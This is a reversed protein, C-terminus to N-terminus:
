GPCTLPLLHACPICQGRRFDSSIEEHQPWHGIALVCRPGVASDPMRIEVLFRARRTAPCTPNHASTRPRPGVTSFKRPGSLSRDLAGDPTLACHIQMPPVLVERRFSVARRYPMINLKSLLPLLSIFAPERAKTGIPANANAMPNQKAAQNALRMQTLTHADHFAAM